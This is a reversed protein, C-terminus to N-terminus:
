EAVVIWIAKVGMHREGGISPYKFYVRKYWVKYMSQLANWVQAKIQKINHM